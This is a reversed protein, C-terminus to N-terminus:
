LFLVAIGRSGRQAMLARELAVKVKIKGPFLLPFKYGCWSFLSCPRILRLLHIGYVTNKVYRGGALMM